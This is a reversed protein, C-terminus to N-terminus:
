GGKIVKSIKKAEKVPDIANTIGGGVIVIEPHYKMYTNVTESNIGGAVATPTKELHRSMEKLDDLPTKGFFQQDVGTHVAIIDVKLAELALLRSQIDRVCLMDVMVKKNYEKAKAVCEKITLDDTIGLVTVYDAGAKFVIDAEYEGADVIKADCLVELHPFQTKIERVAQLGYQILFPTGVEIINIYKEVKELLHIADELSLDDLALQLKGM